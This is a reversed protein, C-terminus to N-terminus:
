IEDIIEWHGAKLSGVRKIQNQEKLKAIDRQITKDTVKLINAIQVVTLDKDKKILEVIKGLRKLPVNKPVNKPVSKKSEKIYDQLSKAIVELMFEIFPTSEGSSGADELAQYYKEQNDRVMSEIPIYIFFDKYSKLIVTQWLRGIRGNGDNFPHIFEFEYHFVCSVILLHEDSSNLWEFIDGMLQPVMNPPPAVHTVGDAGGVGVNSHRYAGANNLLNKMLFKHAKLLDKENKYDYKDLYDYAEIAGKVEEIERMTGLVSKGNIVNTVKTEDFSNGEIQLTGTISRVRNKKRLKLTSYNKDIYKVDSILESIESILKLIESTITYPPKYSSM